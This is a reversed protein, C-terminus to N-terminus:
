RAVIAGHGSWNLQLLGLASLTRSRTRLCAAGGGCVLAVGGGGRGRGHHTDHQNLLVLSFQAIGVSSPIVVVMVLLMVLWVVM